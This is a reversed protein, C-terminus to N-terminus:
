VYNRFTVTRDLNITNPVYPWPVLTRFPYQIRVNVLTEGGPGITHTVTVTALSPDLGAIRGLEDTAYSVIQPDTTAVRTVAAEAGARAANEVGLQAAFARAMDAGGLVTFVLLSLSLATEVLAQGGDRAAM